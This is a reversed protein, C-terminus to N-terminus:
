LAAQSKAIIQLSPLRGPIKIGSNQFRPPHKQSFDRYRAAVEGRSRLDWKELISHVHNKVTAEAIRLRRAILKNPLGDALFELVEQERRTLHHVGPRAHAVSAQTAFKSLLLATLRPPCVVEGAASRRITAVVDDLSTDPVVYGSIGVNAWAIFSEECDSFALVVLSVAPFRARIESVLAFGDPHSSDVLVVDPATGDVADALGRARPHFAVVEGRARLADALLEGIFQTRTVILVTMFHEGPSPTFMLLRFFTDM